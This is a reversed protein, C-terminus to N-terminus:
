RLSPAHFRRTPPTGLFVGWDDPVSRELVKRRHPVFQGAGLYTNSHRLDSRRRLVSLYSEIRRSSKVDYAFRRLGPMPKASHVSKHLCRSM